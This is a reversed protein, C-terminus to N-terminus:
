VVVRKVGKLIKVCQLGFLYFNGVLVIFFFGLGVQDLMSFIVLIMNNTCLCLPSVLSLFTKDKYWDIDSFKNYSKGLALRRSIRDLNEVLKDQWGYVFIHCKQFFYVLKPLKGKRYDENDEKSITEDTRNYRYTGVISTYRVLYFVFYSCHLLCSLLALSGLFWYWQDGTEDVLRLSLVFYILFSVVFDTLSDLFRGLRSVEGRVRALNGDLNDLFIKLYLFLAGLVLGNNSNVTFFCVSVLGAFLSTITIQTPSIPLPYLMKIVWRNPFYWLENVDFFRAELPLKNMRDIDFSM